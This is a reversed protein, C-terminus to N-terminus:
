FSYSHGFTVTLENRKGTSLSKFLQIVNLHFNHKEKFVYSLNARLNTVSTRATKSNSTNYSAGFNTNLTNELFKNNVNLTPGWTSSNEM